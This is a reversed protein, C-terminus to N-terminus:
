EGGICATHDHDPTWAAVEASLSQRIDDPTRITGDANRNFPNVTQWFRRSRTTRKGCVSCKGTSRATTSIEQFNVTTM